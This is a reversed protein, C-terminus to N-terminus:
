INLRNQLYQHVKNLVVDQIFYYNHTVGEDLIVLEELSRFHKSLNVSFNYDIIEDSYSTFILPSVKVSKAYEMSELRYRALLKLPGHFIDLFDNYLSLTDDYPAVLILGSVDRQSALYTAAGTGISYGLVVINENDVCELNKAYDYVKLVSDLMTKDSIKGDSLGYEPYDFMLVNYGEFYKYRDAIKYNLCTNSSNQANGGCFIVLPAVEDEVNYKLWGSIVKGDNDIKIEEVDEILKLENYSTEDHWPHFFARKQMIFVELVLLLFFILLMIGCIKMVKKINM